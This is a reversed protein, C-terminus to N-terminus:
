PATGWVPAAQGAYPKLKAAIILRGGDMQVPAELLVYEGSWQPDGTVPAAGAAGFKVTVTSQLGLIGKLVTHAGTTATDNLHFKAGIESDPHDTLYNRAADSEGTMDVPPATFGGAPSLSGPVLDGSLDRPTGASDDVSIRVARELKNKGVAM